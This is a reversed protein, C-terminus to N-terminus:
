VRPGATACFGTEAKSGCCLRNGPQVETASHWLTVTGTDSHLSDHHQLKDFELLLLVPGTGSGAQGPRVRRSGDFIHYPHHITHISM